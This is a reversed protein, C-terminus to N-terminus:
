VRYSEWPAGGSGLVGGFPEGLGSFAGLPGEWGWLGASDGPQGLDTDGSEIAKGLALKSRKMKLLLPM